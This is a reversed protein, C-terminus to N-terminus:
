YFFMFSIIKKKADRWPVERDVVKELKKLGKKRTEGIDVVRSWDSRMYSQWLELWAKMVCSVINKKTQIRANVSYITSPVSYPFIKRGLSTYSCLSTLLVRHRKWGTVGFKDNGSHLLILM